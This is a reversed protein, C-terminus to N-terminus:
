EKTLTFIRCKKYKRITYEEYTKESIKEFPYHSFDPFFVDGEVTQHVVTLDLYQAYALGEEYVRRGGALFIKTGHAAKLAEALSGVTRCCENEVLLTKSILITKRGPLAKGIEEFTRRGMVVTHGWTLERFRKQDEPIHWPIKGNKGIVGNESMAGIITIM